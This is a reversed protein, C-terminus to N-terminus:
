IKKRTYKLKLLFPYKALGFYKITKFKNSQSNVLRRLLVEPYIKIGEVFFESKGVKHSLFTLKIALSLQIEKLNPFITLM